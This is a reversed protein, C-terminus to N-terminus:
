LNIKFTKTMLGKFRTFSLVRYLHYILKDCPKLLDTFASEKKVNEGSESKRRNWMKETEIIMDGVNELFPSIILADKYFSLLDITM